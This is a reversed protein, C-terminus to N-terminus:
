LKRDETENIRLLSNKATTQFSIVFAIELEL